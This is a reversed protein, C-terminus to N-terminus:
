CHIRYPDLFTFLGREVFIFVGVNRMEESGGCARGLWAVGRRAKRRQAAANLLYPAEDVAAAAAAAGKTAHNLAKRRLAVCYASPVIVRKKAIHCLPARVESPLATPQSPPPMFTYGRVVHVYTCLVAICIGLQAVRYNNAKNGQSRLLLLLCCHAAVRALLLV